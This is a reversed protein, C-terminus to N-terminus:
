YLRPLAGYLASVETASLARNYVRLDDLSGKYPNGFNSDYAAIYLGYAWQSLSTATFTNISFPVPTGDVYGTVVGNSFTFVVHHWTILPLSYNLIAYQGGASFQPYGSTGNLKVDWDYLKSIVRPGRGANVSPRTWFAVTLQNSMELSSSEAVSGYSWKGSFWNTVGHNSTWWTPNYLTASNGNGSSDYATNGWDETFKWWGALGSTIDAPAIPAPPPPAPTGGPVYQCAGIDTSSQPRAIGSFDVLVASLSVAAGIEAGCPQPSFNYPPSSSNVFMPNGNITSTVSCGSTDAMASSM